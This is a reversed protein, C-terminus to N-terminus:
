PQSDTIGTTEARVLVNKKYVASKLTNIFSDIGSLQNALAIRECNAEETHTRINALVDNVEFKFHHIFMALDRNTLLSEAISGYQKVADRQSPTLKKPNSTDITLRRNYAEVADESIM